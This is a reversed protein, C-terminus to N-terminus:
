VEKQLLIGLMQDIRKMLDLLYDPPIQRIVRNTDKEIIKAVPIELETDIEIKLYKSLMDFKRKLEELLKQLEESKVSRNEQAEQQAQQIEREVQKRMGELAGNKVQKQISRQQEVNVDHGVPGIKM